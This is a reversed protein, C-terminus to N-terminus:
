IHSIGTVANGCDHKRRTAVINLAVGCVIRPGRYPRVGYIYIYVFWLTDLLLVGVM